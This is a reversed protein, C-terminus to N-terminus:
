KEDVGGVERGFNGIRERLEQPMTVGSGDSLKLNGPVKMRRTKAGEVAEAYIDAFDIRNFLPLRIVKRTAALFDELDYRDARIDELVCEEWVKLTGESLKINKALAMKVIASAFVKGTEGDFRKEALWSNKLKQDALM